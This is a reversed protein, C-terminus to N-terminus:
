TYMGGNINLVVGNVYNSLPSSLYFIGAAAEDATGARKQPISSEFMQRVKEPIGVSVGEVTEGNEKPRTLRTDIMGFAVTNCNVNFAAWEKAVTKTLGVVGSKASAYNAQGVNGMIGAVSSVNVIKRYRVIGQEMEKKAQDRFYPVAERILRFPAILHVDLMAQFQEDTMKHILSDNTYGANNVLIDVGGYAEATAQIIRKAFDAETVNGHVAIAEGGKAQIAAVVEEAPALDLDSVVVKAGHEAFLEATARGVGRGAGTIIAVQGELMRGTM